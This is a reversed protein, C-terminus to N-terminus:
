MMTSGREKRDGTTMSRVRRVTNRGGATTIHPIDIDKRPYPGKNRMDEGATCIARGTWAETLSGEGKGM